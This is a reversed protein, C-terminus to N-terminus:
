EAAAARVVPKHSHTVGEFGMHPLAPQVTARERLPIVPLITANNKVPCVYSSPLRAQKKKRQDPASGDLGGRGPTINVQEPV